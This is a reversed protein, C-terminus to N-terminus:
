NMLQSYKSIFIFDMSTSRMSYFGILIFDLKVTLWINYFDDILFDNSQISSVTIQM